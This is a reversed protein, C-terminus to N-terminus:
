WRDSSNRSFLSAKLKAFFSKFVYFSFLFKLKIALVHVKKSALREDNLEKAQDQIIKQLKNIEEDDSEGNSDLLSVSKRQSLSKSKASGSRRAKASKEADEAESAVSSDTGTSANSRADTM